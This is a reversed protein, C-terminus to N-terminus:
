FNVTQVKCFVVTDLHVSLYWGPLCLKTSDWYLNWKLVCMFIYFLFIPLFYLNHVKIEKKSVKHITKSRWPLNAVGYDYRIEEGKMIKRTAFVALYPRNNLEIMKM